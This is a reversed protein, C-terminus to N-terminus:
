LFSSLDSQAQKPKIIAAPRPEQNRKEGILPVGYVGDYGPRVKIAGQRNKIIASAIEETTVRLLEDEPVHMMVDNESEGAKLIEHYKAWVSKTAIGKGSILSILEHLPVMSRYGPRDKPRYGKPRDALEEVRQMVGITLPKKCVPCINKHELSERPSFMINCKRHGDFHYKGYNPDVEITEKIGTGTRIANLLDKYSEKIDFVTAERGMRWPWYSHLDSFSLINYPDLQSLRWNMEPDSSLGTEISHINKAQDQFCEKVSDFGSNSGFMSFWPTWIHAPIVEVDHSIGRMMEVFEPCPIKFIPRGDYDVRGRRKLADTIQEAADLDPALVVDHVKRGKGGQTYILSIETQCVFPFGTKTRLFGTGDDELNEKLEGSWQPHTFDGTGLLDIGKIKAYRELNKLDLSTSCGRSHKSHIHLDAIM